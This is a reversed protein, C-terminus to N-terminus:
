RNKVYDITEDLSAAAAGLCMLGILFRSFDFGNMVSHFGKGEEGVRYDLPVRVGDLHLGGRGVARSGMDRFPIRTVGPADMPVLFATIGRAGATPDTKAFTVCADAAMLLSIGSK